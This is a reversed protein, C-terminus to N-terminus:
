TGGGRRAAPRRQLQEVREDRMGRVTQLMPEGTDVRGRAKARDHLERMTLHPPTNVVEELIARLEGQLSRHNRQARQRLREAVDDPVQKISLDVAMM